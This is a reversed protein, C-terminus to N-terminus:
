DWSVFFEDGDLDGGSSEDAHPRSGKTPFVICDNLYAYQPLNKVLKLVRIDGPYYCPNRVVMVETAVQYEAIRVEDYLTPHFVCQGYELEGFPDCVGFVVRSNPVLIRLKSATAGNTDDPETGKDKQM